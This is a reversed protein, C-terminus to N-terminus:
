APIGRSKRASAFISPWGTAAEYSRAFALIREDEMFRGVLQLSTPMGDLGLGCPVVLAPHGTMNFLAMFRGLLKLPSGANRELSFGDESVPFATVAVAPLVIADVTKFISELQDTVKHRIRQARVYYTAPIFEAAQLRDLAVRGILASQKRLAERHFDAAEADMLIKAAAGADALDPLDVECVIAGEREMVAIAREITALVDDAVADAERLRVVGLRVGRLGGEGMLGQLPRGPARIAALVSAADGVTRTIPCVHDMSYSVPLVGSLPVSGFTPKLGVLGCLSAPVRASGGTDTGLSAFSLGAAVACGSGSSTGGCTLHTNWPNWTPGYLPNPGGFALEWLNNKGVLIAGAKEMQHWVAADRSPVSEARLPSGATTLIGATDINDKLSVPVGHLPGVYHGAAVQRSLERARALAEDASVTIFCNLSPNALEVQRLTAEVVELPSVQKSRILSAVESLPLSCLTTGDMM